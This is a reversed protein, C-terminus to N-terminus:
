WLKYCIFVLFLNRSFTTVKKATSVFEQSKNDLLVIKYITNSVSFYCLFAFLFGAYIKSRFMSKIINVTTENSSKLQAQVRLFRLWLTYNIGKPLYILAKLLFNLGTPMNKGEQYLGDVLQSITSINAMITMFKSLYNIEQIKRAKKYFILSFFLLIIVEIALAINM